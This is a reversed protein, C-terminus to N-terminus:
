TDDDIDKNAFLVIAKLRRCLYKNKKKVFLILCYESMGTFTLDIDDLNPQLPGLSPQIFDANGAERALPTFHFSVWNNDM